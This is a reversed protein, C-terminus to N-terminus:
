IDGLVWENWVRICGLGFGFEVGRAKELPILFFFGLVFGSLVGIDGMMCSSLYGEGLRPSLM